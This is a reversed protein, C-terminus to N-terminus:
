QDAGPNSTTNMRAAKVAREIMLMNMGAKQKWEM